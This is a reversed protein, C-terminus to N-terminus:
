ILSRVQVMSPRQHASQRVAAAACEMMQMMIAPDYHSGLQPDILIELNGDAVAQLLLPRAQLFRFHAKSTLGLIEDRSFRDVICLCEFPQFILEPTSVWGVLTDDMYSQSSQVPLRGTLLELLVVGFAFVDAKDTLKGSSLFEPAIYRGSLCSVITIRGDECSSEIGFVSFSFYQIM